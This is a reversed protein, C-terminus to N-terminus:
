FPGNANRLLVISRTQVYMSYDACCQLHEVLKEVYRKEDEDLLAPSCFGLDEGWSITRATDAVVEEVVRIEERLLRQKSRVLHKSLVLFRIVIKYTNRLDRLEILRNSIADRGM